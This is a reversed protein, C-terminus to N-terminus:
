LMSGPASEVALEGALAATGSAAAPAKGAAPILAVVVMVAVAAAVYGSLVVFPQGAGNGSFFELSRVATMGAPNPLVRALWSWAAPLM